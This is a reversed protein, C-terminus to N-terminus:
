NRASNLKRDVMREEQQGICEFLSVANPSSVDASRASQRKVRVFGLDIGGGGTVEYYTLRREPFSARNLVAFNPTM